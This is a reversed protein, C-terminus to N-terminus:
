LDEASYVFVDGTFRNNVEIETIDDLSNYISLIEQVISKIEDYPNVSSKQLSLPRLDLGVKLTNVLYDTTISTLKFDSNLPASTLKKEIAQKALGAIFEGMSIDYEQLHLGRTDGVAEPNSFGLIIKRKMYESQSIFGMNFKIMDPTYGIFYVDMGPEEIDSTLICFFRPPNKMSLFLRLLAISIKRLSEQVAKDWEDEHILGSFPAYVWLTDGSSKVKVEIGFEDKCITTIAEDINKRSYTPPITCSLFFILIFNILLAKQANRAM